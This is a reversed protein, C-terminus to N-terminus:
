VGWGYGREANEAFESESSVGKESADNSAAHEAPTRMENKENHTENQNHTNM